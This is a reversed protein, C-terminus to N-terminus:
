QNVLFVRTLRGVGAVDFAIEVAEPLLQPNDDGSREVWGGDRRFFRLTLNDVGSLLAVQRPEATPSRDLESWV